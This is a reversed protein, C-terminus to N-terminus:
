DHIDIKCVFFDQSKKVIEAVKEDYQEDTDGESTERALLHGDADLCYFSAPEDLNICDAVACGDVRIYGDYYGLAGLYCPENWCYIFHRKMPDTSKM